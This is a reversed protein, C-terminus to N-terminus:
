MLRSVKCQQLFEPNRLNNLTRFRKIHSGNLHEFVIVILVNREEQNERKSPYAASTRLSLLDSRMSNKLLKKSDFRWSFFSFASILSIERLRWAKQSEFPGWFDSSKYLIKVVFIYIYIDIKLAINKYNEYIVHQKTM